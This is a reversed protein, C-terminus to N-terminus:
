RGLLRGLWGKGKEATTDPEESPRTAGADIDLGNRRAVDSYWAASRKPTRVLTEFDTHVIGFRQSNGWAWEFNDMLSWLYYGHVDAGDAIAGHLGALFGSVLGIREQDDVVGDVMDAHDGTGNETIYIKPRGYERSVWRVHDGLAHPAAEYGMTLVPLRPPANRFGMPSGPDPQILQRSYLNVGLFDTPRAILEMDGPQIPLPSGLESYYRHVSGPYGKGFVPGHFIRSEFDRALEVAAATEPSDDAPEFSTNFNTIGIEGAYGGDRFVKVAKGHALLAHHIARSTVAEDAIAPAMWGTRHGFMVFIYPENLTIWRKVRDGFRDFLVKAYAAFADTTERNAWGGRDQLAQPLDWHYLTVAPTINKALLEDIVRDYFALGEENVDGTGFPMVRSWSISMRYTTMGLDAMLAIDDKYRRYHDCAIDGTTGDHVRGPQHAFTDWISVGRGGERVAGEIQYAATAVGWEFGQPFQLFTM